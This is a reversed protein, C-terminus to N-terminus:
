RKRKNKTNMNKDGRTIPRKYKKAKRLYSGGQNTKLNKEKKEHFAGGGEEALNKQKQRKQFDKPREEAILENSEEVEQPFETIPIQYDMLREIAEKAEIEYEASFLISKGEQEARGTRGIRHMYNEPYKPTDFNIVHSIKELDLGRAIVDTAILIRKQGEDFQKISRIRFNQSKNSHIICLDTYGIEELTEYLLDANKKTSVFVLAKTFEEKDKLIHALLNIKTHFNPLQYAEQSINDLPTGSVAIAIKNPAAFADEILIDVEETMTASFMINQRRSPLIEFINTLQFRFGLDLMVDVEDIVLKNITKLSLVNSLALDYLRGPTAVLVDTGESVAKKQNNINTGGYVGLVRINSYQCLKEVEQTVQIVLERTPVLILIRPTLQKSYKLERLLPLLYALTKGTGTQAIGVIDKGSLIMPFAEEQIPTPVTFGLEDFARQLLKPLNFNEFTNM